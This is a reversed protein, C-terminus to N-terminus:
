LGLSTFDVAKLYAPIAFMLAILPIVFVALGIILSWLMYKRTRETSQLVKQLLAEHETLKQEITPEV